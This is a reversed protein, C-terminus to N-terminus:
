LKSKCCLTSIYTYMSVCRLGCMNDSNWQKKDIDIYVHLRQTYKKNVIMFCM